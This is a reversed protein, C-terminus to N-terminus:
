LELFLDAYCFTSCYHKIQSKRLVRNIEMRLKDIFVSPMLVNAFVVYGSVSNFNDIEKLDQHVDLSSVLSRPVYLLFLAKNISMWNGLDKLCLRKLM